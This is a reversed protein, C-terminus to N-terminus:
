GARGAGLAGPLESEVFRSMGNGLFFCQPPLPRALFVNEHLHVFHEALGDIHHLRSQVAYQGSGPPTGEGASLETHSVLHLGPGPRLWGPVAGATVVHVTRVWPAHMRIARLAYRLEEHDGLRPRPPAASVPPAPDVTCVVDVDFTIDDALRVTMERRTRVPRREAPHRPRPGPPAAADSRDVPHGGASAPAPVSVPAPVSAAPPALLRTFAAVPATVAGGDADVTTAARNPRPARLRSGDSEVGWFEVDCGYEEGFVLHRTPDARFWIMRLVAADAVARWSKEQESPLFLERRAPRPLVPHVYGPLRQGLRALVTLVRKRDAAAVAVVGTTDAAGRVVFHDLGAEEFAGAVEALNMVLADVATLRRHVYATRPVSGVLIEERGVLPCWSAEGEAVGSRSPRSGAIRTADVM